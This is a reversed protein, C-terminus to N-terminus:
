HRLASLGKERGKWLIQCCQLSGSFFIHTHYVNKKQPPKSTTQPRKNTRPCKGRWRLANICKLNRHVPVSGRMRLTKICESGKGAGEMFDPLVTILWLFIHTYSLYVNKKTTTKIDNPTKQQPKTHNTTIRHVERSKRFM